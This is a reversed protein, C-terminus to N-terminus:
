VQLLTSYIRQARYDMLQKRDLGMDFRELNFANSNCLEAGAFASGQIISLFYLTNINGSIWVDLDNNEKWKKTERYLQFLTILTPIIIFMISLVLIVNLNSSSGYQSDKTVNVAFLIDSLTDNAYAAAVIIAALKYFDNIRWCRSYIYSILAFLAYIM